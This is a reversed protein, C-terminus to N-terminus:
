PRHAPPDLKMGFSADFGQLGIGPVRLPVRSAGPLGGRGGSRPSWWRRPCSASSCRRRWRSTPPRRTRSRVATGSRRGGRGGAELAERDQEVAADGVSEALGVIVARGVEDERGHLEQCSDGGEYRRGAEASRPRARGWTGGAFSTMGGHASRSSRWPLCGPWSPCCSSSRTTTTAAAKRGGQSRVFGAARPRAWPGACLGRRPGVNAAARSPQCREGRERMTDEDFSPAWPRPFARLSRLRLGEVSPAVVEHRGVGRGGQPGLL